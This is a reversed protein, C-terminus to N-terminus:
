AALMMDVQSLIRGRRRLDLYLEGYVSAIRSELPWTRLGCALHRLRQRYSEPGVIQAIGSELECLAPVAVGLIHGTRHAKRLRDRLPSVPQIAASLHNTDLLYRTM